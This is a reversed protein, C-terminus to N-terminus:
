PAAKIVPAVRLRPMSVAGSAPGSAADNLQESVPVNVPGNVPSLRGHCPANTACGVLWGVVCLCWLVRM